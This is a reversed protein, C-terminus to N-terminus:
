RNSLDWQEPRRMPSNGARGALEKFSAFRNPTDALKYTLKGRFIWALGDRTDHSPKEKRNDRRRSKALTVGRM